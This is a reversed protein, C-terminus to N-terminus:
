FGQAAVPEAAPGVLQTAVRRLDNPRFPKTLFANAGDRDAKEKTEEQAHATLVLVTLARTRLDSRLRSLVEWGDMIPLGVDLILLDPPNELAAELGSPGDSRTDVEFGAPRLCVEILRQIVQSDEVVLVRKSVIL